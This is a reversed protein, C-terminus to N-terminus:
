PSRATDLVVHVWAEQSNVKIISSSFRKSLIRIQPMYPRMLLLFFIDGVSPSDPANSDIRFPASSDPRTARLPGPIM